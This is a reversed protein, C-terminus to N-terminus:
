SFNRSNVGPGDAVGRFGGFDEEAEAAFAAGVDCGEYGPGESVAACAVGFGFVIAEHVLIRELVGVTVM